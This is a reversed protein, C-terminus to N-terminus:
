SKFDVHLQLIDMLLSPLQNYVQSKHIFGDVGLELCRKRYAEEGHHTLVVIRTKHYPGQRILKIVALGNGEPMQLDMIVLDPHHENFLDLAQQGTEAEFINHQPALESILECVRKRIEISDDAILIKM